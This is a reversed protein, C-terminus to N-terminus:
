LTLFQTLPSAMAMLSSQSRYCYHPCGNQFASGPTHSFSWAKGTLFFDLGKSLDLPWCPPLFWPTVELVSTGTSVWPLVDTCNSQCDEQLKMMQSSCGTSRVKRGMSGLTALQAPCAGHPPVTHVCM